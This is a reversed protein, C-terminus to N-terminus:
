TVLRDPSSGKRSLRAWLNKERGTTKSPSIPGPFFPPVLPGCRELTPNVRAFGSRSTVGLEHTQRIKGHTPRYAPFAETDATPVTGSVWCDPGERAGSSRVLSSGATPGGQDLMIRGGHYERTQAGQCEVDTSRGDATQGSREPGSPQPGPLPM